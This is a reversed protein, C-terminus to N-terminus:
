KLGAKRLADFVRKATKPNKWPTKKAFHELSFDPNLKLVEAAAKRAQEDRGALSSVITLAMWCNSNDREIQIGKKLATIAEDYRNLERLAAALTFYYTGSPMPNLRIAKNIHTLAEKPRDAFNLFLSLWMHADAGNPSLEVARQGEAIAKDHQRMVLYVVGLGYHAFGVGDNIRIAKQALKDAERLDKMPSKSWGWWAAMVKCAALGAYPRAYSPDLAIAQRYL